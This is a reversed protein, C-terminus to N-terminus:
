LSNVIKTVGNKLLSENFNVLLRRTKMTIYKRAFVRLERLNIFQKCYSYYWREISRPNLPNPQNESILLILSSGCVRHEKM